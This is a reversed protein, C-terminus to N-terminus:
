KKAKQPLIDDGIAGPTENTGNDEPNRLALRIKTSADSLYLKEAEIPTVALTIKRLAQANQAGNSAAQPISGDIELVLIKQLVIKAINPDVVKKGNEEKEEKEKYILVDVFDGPKIFYAVGNVDNVPITLARKDKPVKYSFNSNNIEILRESVIQEGQLIKESTIKGIINGKNLIANKLVYKEDIKELTVMTDDLKTKAPIEKKAIYVELYKMQSNQPSKKISQIYSYLLIVTIVALLIAIINIRKNSKM